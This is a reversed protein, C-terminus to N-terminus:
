RCILIRTMITWTSLVLQAQKRLYKTCHSTLSPCYRPRPAKGPHCRHTKCQSKHQPAPVSAWENAIGTQQQKVSEYENCMIHFKVSTTHNKVAHIDLTVSLQWVCTWSADYLFAWRQMCYLVLLVLVHFLSQQTRYIHIYYSIQWTVHTFNHLILYSHRHEMWDLASSQNCIFLQLNVFSTRYIFFTRVKLLGFIVCETLLLLTVLRLVHTVTTTKIYHYRIFILVNRKLQYWM